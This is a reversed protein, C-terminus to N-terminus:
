EAVYVLAPRIVRDGIRYGGQLERTVVGSEYEDSSETSLAEHVNPDFVEGVSPIREANIGELIRNMKRLVGNLGDFWANGSIEDPVNQLARDFDDMVPLVKSVVEVTANTYSLQTQREFRKRANSLDAMARQWGELNKAAEAQANELQQEITLEAAEEADSSADSADPSETEHAENALEEVNENEESHNM